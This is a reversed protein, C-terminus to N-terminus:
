SSSVKGITNWMSKVLLARLIQWELKSTYKSQIEDYFHNEGGLVMHLVENYPGLFEPLLEEDDFVEDMLDAADMVNGTIDKEGELQGDNQMQIIMNHLIVCAQGEEIVDIDSWHKREVRLCFWRAQLVGFCREIDKRVAEQRRTYEMEMVNTPHHCPTAFINWSPYIGDALFYPITRAEGEVKYPFDPVWIGGLIDNFLPSASAVTLDNNTGSRGAFWHWVYLDRDCWAEISIVALKGDKPNFYQGKLSKPCNKWTHKM